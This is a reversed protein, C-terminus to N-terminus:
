CVDFPSLVGKNKNNYSQMILFVKLNNMAM